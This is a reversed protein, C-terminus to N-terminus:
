NNAPTFKYAPADGWLHELNYYARQEDGFIHVILMGYDLLVWEAERYGEIRLPRLGQEALKEEINDCIAKIQPKNSGSMILFYDAVPSIGRLDIGIIDRAKKSYGYAAAARALEEPNDVDVSEIQEEEAAFDATELVREGNDAADREAINKNLMNKLNETMNELNETRNETLIFCEKL